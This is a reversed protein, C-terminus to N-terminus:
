GEMMTQDHVKNPSPTEKYNVHLFGYLLIIHRQTFLHFFEYIVLSGAESILCHSM